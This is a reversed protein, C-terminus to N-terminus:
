FNVPGPWLRCDHGPCRWLKVVTGLNLCIVGFWTLTFLLKYLAPRQDFRQCYDDDGQDDPTLTGTTDEWRDCLPDCDCDRRCQHRPHYSRTLWSPWVYTVEM